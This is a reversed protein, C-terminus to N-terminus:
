TLWRASSQSEAQQHQREAYQALREFQQAMLLMGEIAATEISMEAVARTGVALKRYYLAQDVSVTCGERAVNPVGRHHQRKAAAYHRLRSTTFAGRACEADPDAAEDGM